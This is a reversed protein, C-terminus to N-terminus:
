DPKTTMAWTVVLLAVLYLPALVALARTAFSPGVGGRRARRVSLWGLIVLALLVLVGADTVLYGVGMWAADDPFPAETRVWEATLRMLLFSPVAVFLLIRFVLRRSAVVSAPGAARGSALTATVVLAMAGVLLFAGLVHFLLAVEWSGSRVIAIM